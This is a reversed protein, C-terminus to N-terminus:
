PAQCQSPGGAAAIPSAACPPCGQLRHHGARTTRAYWHASREPSPFLTLSVLQSPSFLFFFFFIFSSTPSRIPTLVGVTAVARVFELRCRSSSRAATHQVGVASSCTDCIPKEGKKRKRVLAIHIKSHFCVARNGKQSRGIMMMMMRGGSGGPSSNTQLIRLVPPVSSRWAAYRQPIRRAKNDRLLKCKPM